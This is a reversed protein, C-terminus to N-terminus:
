LLRKMFLFSDDRLPDITGLYFRTPPFRKLVEDDAFIPSIFPDKEEEYKQRYSELCYNLMYYPLIKDDATSLMSLGYSKDTIRLAPYVLFIANPLKINKTILLCTLCAVLNGGASDGVLIINKLNINLIKEAHNLAWVYAQFVDDMAKPYSHEPSLRYDISLIPIDTLNAWKRTYMEHSEPTMAIFGGGHIHIILSDKPSNNIKDMNTYHENSSITFNKNNSIIQIKIFKSIEDPDIKEKIIHLSDYSSNEVPFTERSGSDVNENNFSRLFNQYTKKLNDITLEPLERRIYFSKSFQIKPFIKHITQKLYPKDMLSLFIAMINGDSNIQFKSMQQSAKRQFVAFYPLYLMTTLIQGNLKWNKNKFGRSLSSIGVIFSSYVKNHIRKKLKKKPFLLHRTLNKRILDWEQSNEPKNYLDSHPTKFSRLIYRAYLEFNFCLTLFSITMDDSKMKKLNFNEELIDKAKLTNHNIMKITVIISTLSPLFRSGIKNKNNNDYFNIIEKEIELLLDIKNEFSFNSQSLWDLTNDAEDSLFIPIKLKLMNGILTTVKDKKLKKIQMEAIFQEKIHLLENLKNKVDKIFNLKDNSNLHNHHGESHIKRYNDNLLKQFSEIDIPNINNKLEHSSNNFSLHALINILNLSRKLFLLYLHTLCFDLNNEYFKQTLQDSFKDKTTLIKFLCKEFETLNNLCKRIELSLNDISFETRRIDEYIQKPLYPFKLDPVEEALNEIKSIIKEQILVNESYDKTREFLTEAQFLNKGNLYKM